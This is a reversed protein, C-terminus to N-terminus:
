LILLAFNLTKRYRSRRSLLSPMDEATSIDTSTIDEITRCDLRYSGNELLSVTFAIDVESAANLLSKTTRPGGIHMCVRATSHPVVENAVGADEYVAALIGLGGSAPLVTRLSWKDSDRLTESFRSEIRAKVIEESLRVAKGEYTSELFFAKVYTQSPVDRGQFDVKGVFLEGCKALWLFRGNESECNFTEALPFQTAFMLGREPDATLSTLRPTPREVEALLGRASLANTTVKSLLVLFDSFLLLISPQGGLLESFPPLLECADVATIFRGKPSLSSPWQDVFSRMRYVIHTNDSSSETDLACIDTVLDKAKLFSAMATHSSPLVNIISDILLSYRPLRQVPEILLSRLHQEGIAQVHGAIALGSGRVENFVSSLDISSEMYHQYPEKLRPLWNVLTKAFATAGTIDRPRGKITADAHQNGSQSVGEIDKIAEEETNGLVEELEECFGTNIELIQALSKPFLKRLLDEAVRSDNHQEFSTAKTHVLADLKEIYRRETDVLECMDQRLKVKQDKALTSNRAHATPKSPARKLSSTPLFTPVGLSNILSTFKGYQHLPLGDEGVSPISDPGEGSIVRKITGVPLKIDMDVWSLTQPFLASVIYEATCKSDDVKVMNAALDGAHMEDFMAPALRNHRRRAVLEKLSEKTAKPIGAFYSLLSVALGRYVEDGQKESPLHHVAAYVPSTPAVTLRAFSQFGALSYIHAQIRSSNHTTNSTTSPGYFIIVPLNELLADNTYYLSVVESSLAPLPASLTAM